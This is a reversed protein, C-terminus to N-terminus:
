PVAPLGRAGARCRGTRCPALLTHGFMALNESVTLDGAVAGGSAIQNIGLLVRDSASFPTLDQGGFRISGATPTALGAVTRLFTTKGAGNAGVVACIEGDLVELDVGFLAQVSGYSFEVGQAALLTRGGGVPGM